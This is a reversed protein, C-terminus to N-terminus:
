NPVVRYARWDEATAARTLWVDTRLTVTCGLGVMSEPEASAPTAWSGGIVAPPLLPATRSAVMSKMLAGKRPDRRYVKASTRESAEKVPKTGRGILRDGVYTLQALVSPRGHEERGVTKATRIQGRTGGKEERGGDGPPSAAVTSPNQHRRGVNEFIVEIEPDKRQPPPAPELVPLGFTHYWSLVKYGSAQGPPPPPFSTEVEGGPYKISYTVPGWLLEAPLESM